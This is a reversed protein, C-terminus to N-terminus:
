RFIEMDKTYVDKRVIRYDEQGIYKMLADPNLFNESDARLIMEIVGDKETVSYIRDRVDLTVEGKKTRKTIVISDNNLMSIDCENDPTIEYKSWAIESFKSQPTYACIIKIDDTLVNDLRSVIENHPMPEIIKIDMYECESETGISLPLSFVMKPHPNFGETYWVPIEARLLAAKMTRCLDLHSIFKLANMKSFKIRVSEPLM